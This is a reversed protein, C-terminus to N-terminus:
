VEQKSLRALPKALREDLPASVKFLEETGPLVFELSAAHLFLRNFGLAKM